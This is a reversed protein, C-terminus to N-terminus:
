REFFSRHVHRIEEPQRIRLHRTKLGEERFGVALWADIVSM